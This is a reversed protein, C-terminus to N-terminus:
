TKRTAQSARFRLAQVIFEDRVRELTNIDKVTWDYFGNGAKVGLAGQSVKDKLVQTAHPENNLAPLVSNQITLCMDLGVADIHELVGWVPLRIGFGNKIANDVDEASAIGEQVINSAERIMAQFIRGALQGRVDKRVLAPQKGARRLTDMLAQATQESTEPGMVIEVLPILHPPMWFHATACRSRVLAPASIAGISLGSTNSALIVEPSTWQDLRIFLEQKAALNEPISEVILQVDQIGSELDSTGHLLSKGTEVAARTTLESALLQDMLAHAKKVGAETGTIRRGIMTVPYGAIAFVAAIGPGMMGTGIVAIREIQM